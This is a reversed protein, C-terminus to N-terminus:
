KRAETFNNLVDDLTHEKTPANIIDGELVGGSALMRKQALEQLGKGIYMHNRQLTEVARAMTEFDSPTAITIDALSAKMKAHIDITLEFMASAAQEIKDFYGPHVVATIAMGIDSALKEAEKAYREDWKDITRWRRIVDPFLRDDATGEQIMLERIDGSTARGASKTFLEFARVRHEPRTKWTTKGRVDNSNPRGGYGSKANPKVKRAAQKKPPVPKYPKKSVVPKKTM